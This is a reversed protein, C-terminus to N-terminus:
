SRGLIRSSKWVKEIEYNAEGCRAGQQGMRLSRVWACLSHQNARLSDDFKQFPVFAVPKTMGFRPEGRHRFSCHAVLDAAACAIGRLM